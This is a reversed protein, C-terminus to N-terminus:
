GPSSQRLQEGRGARILSQFGGYGCSRIRNVESAPSEPGSLEGGVEIQRIQRPRHVIGMQLPDLNIHCDVGQDPLILDGAQGFVKEAEILHSGICQKQLVESRSKKALLMSGSSSLCAEVWIVMWL